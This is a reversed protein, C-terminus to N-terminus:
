SELELATESGCLPGNGADSPDSGIVQGEGNNKSRTRTPRLVVERPKQRSNAAFMFRVPETIDPSGVVRIGGVTEKGFKITPDFALTVRKGVWDVPYPSGFMKALYQANTINCLFQQGSTFVLVLKHEAEGKQNEVATRSKDMITFTTGDPELVDGTLYPSDYYERYSRKADSM